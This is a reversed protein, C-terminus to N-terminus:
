GIRWDEISMIYGWGDIQPSAIGLQALITTINTRHEVGHNVVQILLAVAKFRYKQEDWVLDILDSSQVQRAADVLASSVQEAYPRMELLSHNQEWNFPPQLPTGTLRKYYGAEARIIHRLTDYISGYVGAAGTALQENTLSACLDILQLNAWRNYQLFDVVMSDTHNAM